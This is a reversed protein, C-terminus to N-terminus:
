SPANERLMTQIATLASKLSFPKKLVVADEPLDFDSLMEDSYGTMYIVKMEPAIKLLRKALESGKMKPLLLDTILLDFPPEPQEFFDLADEAQNTSFVEYNYQVLLGSICDCMTEDDEVVLIRERSKSSLSNNNSPKENKPEENRKQNISPIFIRFQTGKGIESSVEIHGNSQKVIGYVTSLGLGTGKGTEKTTFFPEFIQRQTNADIGMGNDQFTLVMYSQREMYEPLLKDSESETCDLISLSVEGGNPMADRANTTFNILIQELATRNINVHIPADKFNLFFRIDEPILRQLIKQMDRTVAVADLIRPKLNKNRRSFSLLQQTLDAAREAAKRIEELYSKHPNTDDTKDLVLDSFSLIVALINNFDHAIGGALRGVAEMKQSQFLDQELRRIQSVDRQIVVYNTIEGPRGYVPFIKWALIFESGDKRYGVSEGATTEGEEIDKVMEDIVSHDTNPGNLLSIGKGIVDVESYGTIETFGDNTYLIRADGGKWNTDTIIVAEGISKLATAILRIQAETIENESLDRIFLLAGSLEPYVTNTNPRLQFSIHTHQGHKNLTYAQAPALQPNRYREDSLDIRDHTTPDYAVFIDAISQGISEAQEVQLVNCAPQNINEVKGSRDLVLIGESSYELLSDALLSAKLYEKSAQPTDTASTPGTTPNQNM